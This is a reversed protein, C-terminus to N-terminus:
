TKRSPPSVSVEWYGPRGNGLSYRALHAFQGAGSAWKHRKLLPHIPYDPILDVSETILPALAEISQLEATTFGHFRLRQYTHLDKFLQLEAFTLFPGPNLPTLGSKLPLIGQIVKHHPGVPHGYKEALATKLRKSPPSMREM